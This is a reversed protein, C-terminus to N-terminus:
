PCDELSKTAQLAHLKWLERIKKWSLLRLSLLITVIAAFSAISFAVLYGWTNIIAGIAFGTFAFPLGICNGIVQFAPRDEKPAIDLFYNFYGLWNSAWISALICIALLWFYGLSPFVVLLICMILTILTGSNSLIIIPKNGLLRSIEGLIIGGLVGGIIQVYVLWSIQYESLDLTHSGFVIAFTLASFGFYSPIRAIIACRLPISTKILPLFRAYYKKINPKIPNKIPKPDKVMKIFILSPILIVGALIFILGFRHNDTLLPTALLWTLLLGLLLSMISGGAVQMGMMQGRIETKIARASLEGWPVTNLGDSFWFTGFLVFFVVISVYPHAGLFLPIAMLNPILRLIMMKFMANPIDKIANVFPAIVLQGLLLFLPQITVALGVLAISGTMRDVFLAVAGGSAMISVAAVFFIGEFTLAWYNKDYRKKM